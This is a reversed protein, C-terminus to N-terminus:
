VAHVSKGVPMAAGVLIAGLLVAHLCGDVHVATVGDSGPPWVISYDASTHLSRGVACAEGKWPNDIPIVGCNKTKQGQHGQGKVESGWIRVEALNKYL